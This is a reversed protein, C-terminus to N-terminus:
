NSVGAAKLADQFEVFEIAENNLTLIFTARPRGPMADVRVVTAVLSMGSFVGATIPQTDILKWSRQTEM